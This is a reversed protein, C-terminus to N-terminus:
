TVLNVLRGEVYVVQRPTKGRLHRQVTESALARLRVEDKGIGAPVSIRDRVKGDVQVVLTIEDTALAAPDFTPWAQQHISYPKGLRSWLEEAMHPAVPALLLLLTETSQRFGRTGALGAQRAEAAANTLEMLASVVTNFEFREMDESVQRIALHTCRRLEAAAADSDVNKTSSLAGEVEAGTELVLSWLRHLWRVVGQINEDSWPGGEAWRYGFMLYARVVDAGYRAVQEDPDIVNGRSKSMRAGDPGLIHGQNRLQLMPEPGETIGMDRLAKHFFRTYILHMTAHEAGGTYTDVPMWYDYQRPDFPAQDYNPSLYRLHYWSSCMFTDMTDTDREAPKGCRPCTTLKWTPHLKLPSQGTPRWEVDDPLLVPLVSEPVPVQGHEPCHVIPIPAGWYRQRSILWDRLRYNVAAEGVGKKALFEITAPIAQEASTGTLHGSNVMAGDAPIAQEMTAGDLAALGDPQIV